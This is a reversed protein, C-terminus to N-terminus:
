RESSENKRNLYHKWVEIRMIKEVGERYAKEAKVLKRNMIGISIYMCVANVLKLYERKALMCKGSFAEFLVIRNRRFAEFPPEVPSLAILEKKAPLLWGNFTVKKIFKAKKRAPSFYKKIDQMGYSSKYTQIYCSLREYEEQTLEKKLNELTGMKVQERLWNNVKEADVRYLWEPGKCFDRFAQYVLKMEGYRFEIVSVTIRKWVWKVIEWWSKEPQTLATTILTNRVDYYTNAGPFTLEFGKHWVGFGNLFVIGAKQNRIGFEIDDHHLFLPIPLNDPCVLNLSMCCCWWGSYPTNKHVAECMYKDTCVHFDRLDALPFDNKVVFEEFWEGAAQQIYPFDERWLSGGLTIDEWEDKRMGLFGYARVFLEPDMVADDDMMQVHTLGLREKEEIAEIMGRTFGGAGGVNRNPIIRITDPHEKVLRSIEEHESLTRGNDVLWYCLNMSANEPRELFRLVSKLNRLVYPERKFTCVVAAIRVPKEKQCKGEYWGSLQLADSKSSIGTKVSFWFVGQDTEPYPFELTLSESQGNLEIERIMTEDHMLRVAQCDSVELHLTLTEQNTYKKRKEIYFLNFYGNFDIWEGNRHFYLEEERCIDPEPFRINQLRM